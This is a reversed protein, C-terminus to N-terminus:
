AREEGDGCATAIGVAVPEDVAERGLLRIETGSLQM